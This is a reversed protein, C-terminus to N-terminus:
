TRSSWVTVDLLRQAACEIRSEVKELRRETGHIAGRFIVILDRSSGVVADLLRQAACEMRSEVKELRRETGHIAGRFIV